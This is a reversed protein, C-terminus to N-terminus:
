DDSIEDDKFFYINNGNGLLFKFGLNEFFMGKIKQNDNEHKVSNHFSKKYYKVIFFYSYQDIILKILCRNYHISYDSTDDRRLRAIYRELYCVHKLVTNNDVM